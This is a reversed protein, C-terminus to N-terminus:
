LIRAFGVDDRVSSQISKKSSARVNRGLLVIIDVNERPFIRPLPGHVHQYTSRLSSLDAAELWHTASRKPIEEEDGLRPRNRSIVAAEILRNPM